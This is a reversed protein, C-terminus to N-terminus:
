HMHSRLKQVDGTSQLCFALQAPIQLSHGLGTVRVLSREAKAASRGSIRIGFGEADNLPFSVSDFELKCFGARATLVSMKM